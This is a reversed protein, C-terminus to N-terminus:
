EAFLTIVTEIALALLVETPKAEGDTGPMGERGLVGALLVFLIAMPTPTPVAKPSAIHPAIIAIMSVREWRLRCLLLVDSAEGRESPPLAARSPGSGSTM